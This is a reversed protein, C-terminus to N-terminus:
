WMICLNKYSDIEEQIFLRADRLQGEFRLINGKYIKVNKTKMLEFLNAKVGSSMLRHIYCIGDAFVFWGSEKLDEFYGKTSSLLKKHKKSLVKDKKIKSKDPHQDIFDSLGSLREAKQKMLNILNEDDLNLYENVYTKM